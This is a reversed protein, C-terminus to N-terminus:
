PSKTIAHHWPNIATFLCSKNINGYIRPLQAIVKYLEGSQDVFDCNYRLFVIAVFITFLGPCSLGIMVSDHCASAFVVVEGHSHTLSSVTRILISRRVRRRIYQQGKESDLDDDSKDIVPRPM